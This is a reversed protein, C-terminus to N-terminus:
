RVRRGHRPDDEVGVDQNRGEQPGSRWAGDVLKSRDPSNLRYGGLLKFFFQSFYSAPGFELKRGFLNHGNESLDLPNGNGDNDGGRELCDHLIRAVVKQEPEGYVTTRLM